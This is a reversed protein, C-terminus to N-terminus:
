TKYSFKLIYNNISVIGRKKLEYKMRVNNKLKTSSYM